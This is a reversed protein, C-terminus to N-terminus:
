SVADDNTLDIVQTIKFKEGFEHFFQQAVLTYASYGNSIFRFEKLLKKLHQFEMRKAMIRPGVGRNDSVQYGIIARTEADIILWIYGKVGRVKIYTEDAAFASEKEYPYTDVFPKVCIAVTKCNNAVM